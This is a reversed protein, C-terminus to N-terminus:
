IYRYAYFGVYDYYVFSLGLFSCFDKFLHTKAHRSMVSRRMGSTKFSWVLQVLVLGASTKSFSTLHLDTPVVLIIMKLCVCFYKVFRVLPPKLLQSSTRIHSNIWNSFILYNKLKAHFHTSFNCFDKKEISTMSKSVIWSNSFQITFSCSLRALVAPNDCIDLKHYFNTKQNKLGHRSM